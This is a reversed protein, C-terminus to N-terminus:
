RENHLIVSFSFFFTLKNKRPIFQSEKKPM